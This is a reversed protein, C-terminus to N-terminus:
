GSASEKEPKHPPPASGKIVQILQFVNQITLLGWFLLSFVLAVVALGVRAELSTGPPLFTSHVLLGVGLLFCIVAAAKRGQLRGDSGKLLGGNKEPDHPM